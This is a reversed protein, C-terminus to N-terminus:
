EHPYTLSRFIAFPNKFNIGLALLSKLDYFSNALAHSLKFSM